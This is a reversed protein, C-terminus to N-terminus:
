LEDFGILHTKGKRSDSLAKRALEDLVPSQPQSLTHQWQLESEIDEMLLLRLNPQLMFGFLGLLLIQDRLQFVIM